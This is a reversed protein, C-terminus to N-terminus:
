WKSRQRLKGCTTWARFGQSRGFQYYHDGVDVDVLTVRMAQQFPQVCMWGIDDYQGLKRGGIGLLQSRRRVAAERVCCYVSLVGREPEADEGVPGQVVLAKVAIRETGQMQFRPDDKM